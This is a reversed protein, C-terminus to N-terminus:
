SKQRSLQLYLQHLSEIKKEFISEDADNLVVDDALHEYISLSPQIAMLESAENESLTDRQMLRMKQISATSKILLVRNLYPYHTRDTLLPIEIICYPALPIHKLEAEIGQQILPHLYAELWLREAPEKCIYRRLLKKNLARDPLLIHEGFHQVIAQYAQTGPKILQRNIADASIVSIQQTAFLSSAFSKGSAIQGTMGVCYM